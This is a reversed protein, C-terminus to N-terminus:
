EAPEGPIWTKPPEVVYYTNLLQRHALEAADRADDVLKWAKTHRMDALEELADDLEKVEAEAEKIKQYIARGTLRENM